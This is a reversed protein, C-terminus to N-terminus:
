PAASEKRLQVLRFYPFRVAFFLAQGRRPGAGGAGRRVGTRGAAVEAAVNAAGGAERAAGGSATSPRAPLGM